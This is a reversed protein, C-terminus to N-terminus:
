NRGPLAALRGRASEAARHQGAALYVTLAREYFERAAAIQLRGHENDGAYLLDLAIREPLGLRQDIALAQALVAAAADAEGNRARARGLLRLANAQEAPQGSESAMKAAHEAHAAAAALEGRQLAVHARVGALAAALECPAPCGAQATDAWRLASTPDAADLYLLAKRAAARARMAPPYRLSAALIRDVRAHAAALDGSRSHVLALNLLAAGSLEFDEVSEAAALASEYHALSQATDGRALARAASQSLSTASQQAANPAPGTATCAALGFLLWVMAVAGRTRAGAPRRVPETPM